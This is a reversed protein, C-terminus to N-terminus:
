GIVGIRVVGQVASVNEGPPRAHSGPCGIAQSRLGVIQGAVDDNVAPLMFDWEEKLYPTRAATERHQLYGPDAKQVARNLENIQRLIEASKGDAYERAKRDQADFWAAQMRTYDTLLAATDLEGDENYPKTHIDFAM